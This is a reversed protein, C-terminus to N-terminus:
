EPAFATVTVPLAEGVFAGLADAVGFTTVACSSGQVAQAGPGTAQDTVAVGGQREQRQVGTGAAGGPLGADLQGARGGGVPDGLGGVQEDVAETVGLPDPQQQRQVPLRDAQQEGTDRGSRGDDDGAGRGVEGAALRDERRDVVGTVGEVGAGVVHERQAAM